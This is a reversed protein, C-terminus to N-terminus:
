LGLRTETMVVRELLWVYKPVAAKPVTPNALTATCLQRAQDLLSLHAAHQERFRSGSRARTDAPLGLPDLFVTDGERACGVRDLHNEDFLGGDIRALACARESLIIRPKDACKELEVVTSPAPGLVIPWLEFTLGVDVAGRVLLRHDRLM